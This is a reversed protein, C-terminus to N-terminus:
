NQQEKRRRLMLWLAAGLTLTLGTVTYVATGSGGTSPLEVGATETNIITITADDTSVVAGEATTEAGNDARYATTLVYGAEAAEPEEVVYYSANYTVTTQSGDEGNTKTSTVFLPLNPITVTEWSGSSGNGTYAVTFKGDTHSPVGTYAAPVPTDAADNPNTLKQFLTFEISKASDFTKAAGDKTWQKTVEISVCKNNTFTVTDTNENAAITKEDDSYVTSVLIWGTISNETVTYYTGAPLDSIIATDEGHITVEVYKNSDGPLVPTSEGNVTVTQQEFTDRSDNKWLSVIFTFDEEAGATESGAQFAKTIRLSGPKPTYENKIDLTKDDGANIQVTDTATYSGGNVSYTTVLTYASNPNAKSENVTYTGPDLNELTWANNEMAYIEAYTKTISSFGTPGSVTFEIANKEAETLASAHDGDFTKTVTLKGKLRTNTVNVTATKVTTSLAASTKDQTVTYAVGNISSEGGTLLAPHNNADLEYIYYTQGLELGTFTKSGTGSGNLTIFETRDATSAATPQTNFLGIKVSQGNVGTDATTSNVLATKNVTISGYEKQYSNTLTATVSGAANVSVNGGGSASLAYGSIAAGAEDEAVTYTGEPLNPFTVTEGAKLTFWKKSDGLTGATNQLYKGSAADQVTFAFTKNAYADTTPNFSASKTVKLKGGQVVNTVLVKTIAKPTSDNFTYNYTTDTIISSGTHGTEKVYYYLPGNADTIPLNAWTYSWKGALDGSNLTVPNTVGSVEKWNGQNEPVAYDSGNAQSFTISSISSGSSGNGSSTIEEIDYSGYVVGNIIHEGNYSHFHLTITTNKTINDIRYSVDYKTNTSESTSAVIPTSIIVNSDSSTVPLDALNHGSEIWYSYTTFKILVSSCSTDLSKQTHQWQDIYSEISVTNKEEYIQGVLTITTGDVSAAAVGKVNTGDGSWNVTYNVGKKLGSATGSWGSPSLTVTAAPTSGNEETFTVTISGSSPPASLAVGSEDQWSGVLVTASYPTGTGDPAINSQYLTMTVTDGTHAKGDSWVKEVGISTGHKYRNTITLGDGSVTVDYDTTVSANNHAMAIDTEEAQYTYSVYNGNVLGVTPLGNWLIKWQDDGASFVQKRTVGDFTVDAAPTNSVTFTGYLGTAATSAATETLTGNNDYYQKLRLTIILNARDYATQETGASTNEWIKTFEVSIKEANIVTIRGDEDAETYFTEYVAGDPAGNVATEKVAYHWGAELADLNDFTYSQKAGSLVAPNVWRAQTNTNYWSPQGVVTENNGDTKVLTMQVTVGRPWDNNSGAIVAGDADRNANIWTKDVSIRTKDINNTFTATGIETPEDVGGVVRVTVDNGSTLATGNAPTDEHVTYEGATLGAVTVSNSVGGTVTVVVPSKEEVEVGDKFIHFIYAGDAATDGQAAPKGNVTVNKEIKLSGPEANTVVVTGEVIGKEIPSLEEGDNNGEYSVTYQFGDRKLANTDEVVVYKFSNGNEDMTPLGTFIDQWDNSAILTVSAGTDEPGTTAGDKDTTYRYLRMVIQMPLTSGEKVEFIKKVTIKITKPIMTNTITVTGSEIGTTNSYSTQYGNVGDVIYYTNNNADTRILGKAELEAYGEDTSAIYVWEEERVFYKYTRGQADKAPLKTWTYNPWVGSGDATIGRLVVEDGYPVAVGDADVQYLHLRIGNEPRTEFFNDSDKAWVKRASINTYREEIDTVNWIVGTVMSAVTIGNALQAADDLAWARAQHEAADELISGDDNMQTYVVFYHKTSDLKYGDPAKTEMWYYLKLEKLTTEGSPNNQDLAALHAIGEQGLETNPETVIRDIVVYDNTIEFNEMIYALAEADGNKALTIKEQLDDWDYGLAHLQDQIKVEVQHLQFEVGNFVRSTNNEDIKKLYLELSTSQVSSTLQQVTHRETVSDSHSGGGILTATNTFSAEGYARVKCQYKVTYHYGDPLNSFTLYRTDDNYSISANNFAAKQDPTLANIAAIQEGTLSSTDGNIKDIDVCVPNTDDNDLYVILQVTEAIIDMATDIRDTLTLPKGGNLVYGKPNAEVRYSLKDDVKGDGDVVTGNNTVNNGGVEGTSSNMTGDKEPTDDYKKIYNSETITVDDSANWTNNGGDTVTVHNEYTKSGTVSSTIKAWEDAALTTYYTVVISHGSLAYVERHSSEDPPTTNGRISEKYQNLYWVKHDLQLDIQDITRNSNSVSLSDIEDYDDYIYINGDYYASMSFITTDIKGEKVFTNYDILELGEPVTDTFWIHESDPSLTDRGPNIYVTWKIVIRKDNDDGNVSYTGQNVGVKNIIVDNTDIDQTATAEYQNNIDVKNMAEPELDDRARLQYPVRVTIDIYIKETIEEFHWYPLDSTGSGKHVTYDVIPTLVVGSETTVVSNLMDFWEAQSPESNAYGANTMYYYPSEYGVRETVKIDTLPFASGAAKDVTIRWTVIGTDPDIGTGEKYIAPIHTVDTPFQPKIVTSPSNNGVVVTNYAEKEGKFGADKAENENIVDALYTITIPGSGIGEPLTYYFVRVMATGYYGDDVYDTWIVGDKANAGTGIPMDFSFASGASHVTGKPDTFEHDLAPVNVQVSGEVLKQMDTFNDMVEVGSLDFTGDGVTVTYKVREGPVVAQDNVNTGDANAASESSVGDVNKLGTSEVSKEAPFIPEPEYPVTAGEQASWKGVTITNDVYRNDYISQATATAQDVITTSYRIYVPGKGARESLVFDLLYAGSHGYQGDDTYVVGNELPEYVGDDGYKILVSGNLTQLDTMIDTVRYGSLDVTGDGIRITYTVISGPQWKGDEPAPSVESTKEVIITEEKDYTVISETEDTTWYRGEQALNKVTIADFINNAKATEQDIVTASYTVKVTYQGGNNLEPYNGEEPFTYDYVNTMSWESFSNDNSYCIFGEPLPTIETSNVYLHMTSSDLVQVDTMADMIRLGNLKTTTYTVEYDIVSSPALEQHEATDQTGGKKSTKDVTVPPEPEPEKKIEYYTENTPYDKEGNVRWNAKNYEWSSGYNMAEYQAATVNTTYTVTYVGKGAAYKDGNQAGGLAQGVNFSFTSPQAESNNTLNSVSIQSGGDKSIKVSGADLTQMNGYGFADSFFLDDMDATNEFTVTYNLTYSGNGNATAQLEKRNTKVTDKYHIVLTDTSGPFQYTYEDKEGLEIEDTEVTLDFNGRVSNRTTFWDKDTFHFIVKGDATIEIQGIVRKGTYLYKSAPTLTDKLPMYALEASLDYVLDIESQNPATNSWYSQLADLMNDDFVYKFNLDFIYNREKEGQTVEADATVSISSMLKAFDFTGDSNTADSLNAVAPDTVHIIIVIGSLMEISLTEESSFPRLSTLLWDGALADTVDYEPSYPESSVMEEIVSLEDEGDEAKVPTRIAFGDETKEVKLLDDNTFDVSIVDAVNENIQLGSLLESLLLVGGGPMSFQVGSLVFDVTYTVAFLSFGPTAFSVSSIKGEALAYETKELPEANGKEDVHYVTVGTVKTVKGDEQPLKIDTAITVNAGTQIEKGDPGILSIEYFIPDSEVPGGRKKAGGITIGEPVEPNANVVLKTGDPVEEAAAFSGVGETIVTQRAEIPAPNQLKIEVETGDSLEVTLVVEGFYNNVTLTDGEVTVLNEDSLSVINYYSSVIENATLIDAVTASETFFRYVFGDEDDPIVPKEPKTYNTLTLALAAKETSFTIKATEFSETFAIKGAGYELAGEISVAASSFFETGFDDLATGNSLSVTYVETHLDQNAADQAIFDLIDTVAIEELEQSNKQILQGLENGNKQLKDLDITIEAKKENYVFDVTYKLLFASFGDTTFTFGTLLNDAWDVRADQVVTYSGDELFHYLTCSVSVISANRDPNDAFVDIPPDFSVPVSYSDAKHVGEALKIDFAAYGTISATAADAQQNQEATNRAATNLLGRKKLVPKNVASILSQMDKVPSVTFEDEALTYEPLTIDLQKSESYNATLLDSGQPLEEALIPLPAADLLMVLLMLVAMWKKTAKKM